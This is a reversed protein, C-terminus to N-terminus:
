EGMLSAIYVIQGQHYTMNWYPQACIDRLTMTGWTKPGWPLPIDTELEEDPVAQIAAVVLAANTEHLARVAEEDQALAEKVSVFKAMFEAPPGFRNEIMNVISGNLIACEAVQDIASRAASSPKWSRKESPIVDLATILDDAAKQTSSALFEQVSNLM